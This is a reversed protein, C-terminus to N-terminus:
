SINFRFKWAKSKKQPFLTFNLISNCKIVKKESCPLFIQHWCTNIKRPVTSFTYRENLYVKFYCCMGTLTSNKKLRFSASLEGPIKSDKRLDITYFLKEKCLFTEKNHLEIPLPSRCCYIHQLFMAKSINSFDIGYQKRNWFSTQEEFFSRYNTPALYLEIKFPIIAGDHKLYNDRIYAVKRMLDDNWIYRGIQEQILVDIKERPKFKLIDIKVFEINKDLNNQEATKKACDIIDNKDVAYVKKCGKKAAFFSLIGTGCGIDLVVDDSKVSDDIAKKYSLTRIRDKILIHHSTLDNWGLKNKPFLGFLQKKIM